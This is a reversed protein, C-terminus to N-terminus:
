MRVCRAKKNEAESILLDLLRQKEGPCEALLQILDAYEFGLNQCHVVAAEIGLNFFVDLPRCFLVAKHPALLPDNLEDESLCM